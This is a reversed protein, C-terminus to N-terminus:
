IKQKKVYEIIQKETLEFFDLEKIEFIHGQIIYRTTETDFVTQWSGDNQPIIFMEIGNKNIFRAHWEFIDSKIKTQLENIEEKITKKPKLTSKEVIKKAM